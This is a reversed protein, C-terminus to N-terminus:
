NLLGISFIAVPLLWVMITFSINDGIISRKSEEDYGELTDSLDEWFCFTCVTSGLTTTFVLACYHLVFAESQCLCYGALTAVIAAVFSIVFTKVM